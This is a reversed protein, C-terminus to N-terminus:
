AVVDKILSKRENEVISEPIVVILHAYKAGSKAGVIQPAEHDIAQLYTHYNATGGYPLPAVFFKIKSLISHNSFSRCKGSECIYEDIPITNSLKNTFEATCKQYEVSLERIEARLAVDSTLRSAYKLYQLLNWGTILLRPTLRHDWTFIKPMAQRLDNMRHRLADEPTGMKDSVDEPLKLEPNTSKLQKNHHIFSYWSRSASVAHIRKLPTKIFRKIFAEPSELRFMSLTLETLFRKNIDVLHVFESAYTVENSLDPEKELDGIMGGSDRQLSKKYLELNNCKEFNREVEIAMMEVYSDLILLPKPNFFFSRSLLLNNSLRDILHWASLQGFHVNGKYDKRSRQKLLLLSRYKDGFVITGDLAEFVKSDFFSLSVGNKFLEQLGRYQQQGSTVGKLLLDRDISNYCSRGVKFCNLLLILSLLM